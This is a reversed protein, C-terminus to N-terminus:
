KKIARDFKAALREVGATIQTAKALIQASLAEDIITEVANKLTGFNRSDCLKQLSRYAAPSISVSITPTRPTKAKLM